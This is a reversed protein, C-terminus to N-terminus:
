QIWQLENLAPRSDEAPYATGDLWMLEVVLGAENMGGHPFEKGYQNFTISGWKSVWSVPKENGQLLATKKLGKANTVLMGNGTVWDYNRGFVLQGDKSLLFTSCASASAGYVLLLFFAITKKM